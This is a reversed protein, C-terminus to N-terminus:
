GRLAAAAHIPGLPGASWTGEGSDPTFGCRRLLDDAASRCEERLSNEDLNVVEGARLAFRGGVIVSHAKTEAGAYVLRAAVKHPTLDADAPLKLDFLALDAVAGPTIGPIGSGPMLRNASATRLASGATITGPDTSTAKALFAATKLTDFLNQCNNTAAGDTGFTVSIGRGLIKNLPAIGAAVYMNSAPCHVVTAGSRAITDLETDGVWVCHVLQVDPGLAGMGALWEVPRVGRLRIHEEVERHTEAVHMHTPMGRRRALSLLERMAADSCRWPALPGLGVSILGDSGSGWREHLYTASRVISDISEGGEGSDAWARVLCMRMGVEIASVAAADVLTHSSTTKAHEVVGTVGCRLNEILGLRSALEVDRPTMAAQLPWIVVGLTEFLDMDVALWRMFTQSLHTHGNVLGRTLVMGAANIATAAASTLGAPASGPGTSAIRGGSVFVWGPAYVEDRDNGTIVHAGTILIPDDTM